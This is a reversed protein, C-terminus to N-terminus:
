EYFDVCRPMSISGKKKVKPVVPVYLGKLYEYEPSDEPVTVTMQGKLNCYHSLEMIQSVKLLIIRVENYYELTPPRRTSILYKFLENLEEYYKPITMEIMNLDEHASQTLAAGNKITRKGKECSKRVHHFTIPNDRTVTYGMFCNEGYIENVMRKLVGTM